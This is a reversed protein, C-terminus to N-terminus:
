WNITVGYVRGYKQVESNDFGRSYALATEIQELKGRLRLSNGFESLSLKHQQNSTLEAMELIQQIQEADM